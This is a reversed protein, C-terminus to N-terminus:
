QLYSPDVGSRLEAMNIRSINPPRWGDLDILCESSRADHYIRIIFGFFIVLKECKNKSYSEVHKPYYRQGDDPTCM